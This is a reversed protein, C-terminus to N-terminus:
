RARARPMAVSITDSAVRCAAPTAAGASRRSPGGPAWGVGVTLLRIRDWTENRETHNRLATRPATPRARATATTSIESTSCPKQTTSPVSDTSRDFARPVPAVAARAMAPVVTPKTIPEITISPTPPRISRSHTRSGTATRTAPSAGDSIEKVAPWAPKVTTTTTRNLMMLGTPHFTPSVRISSTTMPHPTLMTTPTSNQGLPAVAANPRASDSAKTAM